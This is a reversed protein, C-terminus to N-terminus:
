PRQTMLVDLGAQRWLDAVPPPVRELRLVGGTGALSLQLALLVQTACTDLAELGACEVVVIRPAGRAAERAAAHLPDAESVNVIGALRLTWTEGDKLLAVSM